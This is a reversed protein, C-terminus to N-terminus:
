QPILIWRPHGDLKALSLPCGLDRCRSWAVRHINMMNMSYPVWISVKSERDDHRPQRFTRASSPRPTVSALAAAAAHPAPKGVSVPPRPRRLPPPLKQRPGPGLGLVFTRSACGLLANWCLRLSPIDSDASTRTPRLWHRSPCGKRLSPPADGRLGPGEVQRVPAVASVPSPGLGRVSPRPARPVRRAPGRAAPRIRRARHRRAGRPASRSPAAIARQSAIASQSQRCWAARPEPASHPVYCPGASARAACPPPCTPAVAGLDPTPGASAGAEPRASAHRRQRRCSACAVAPRRRQGAPRPPPTTTPPPRRVAEAPAAAPATAAADLRRERRRPRAGPRAPGGVPGRARRAESATHEPGHGHGCALGSGPRAPGPRAPGPRPGRLRSALCVGLLAAPAPAPPRRLLLPRHRRRHPRPAAAARALRRAASRRRQRHGDAPRDAAAAGRLSLSLPLSISPSFLSFPTSAPINSPLYTPPYTPLYTPLYPSIPLLM